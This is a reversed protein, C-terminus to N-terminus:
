AAGRLPTPKFSKNPPQRLFAFLLVSCALWWFLVFFLVFFSAGSYPSGPQIALSPFLTPLATQLLWLPPALFIDRLWHWIGGAGDAIFTVGLFLLSFLFGLGIAKLTRM